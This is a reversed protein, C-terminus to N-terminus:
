ISKWKLKNKFVPELTYLISKKIIKIRPSTLTLPHTDISKLKNSIYVRRIKPYVFLGKLMKNSIIRFWKLYIGKLM